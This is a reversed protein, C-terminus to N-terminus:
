PTAVFTASCTGEIVGSSDDAAFTPTTESHDGLICFADASGTITITINPDGAADTGITTLDAAAPFSGNEVIFSVVQTKATTIASQVASNKAQEQQGLFIPIAIAALIGIIIVVVLLEILTFGKEGEERAARIEALKDHLKIM